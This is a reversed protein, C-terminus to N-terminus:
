FSSRGFFFFWLPCQRIFLNGRQWTSYNYYQGKQLDYFIKNFYITKEMNWWWVFCCTWFCYSRYTFDETFQNKKDKTFLQTDEQWATKNTTWNLVVGDVGVAFAAGVVAVSCAGVVEAAVEVVAPEVVGLVVPVGCPVPLIVIYVGHPTQGSYSRAQSKGELKSLLRKYGYWTMTVHCLKNRWFLESQIIKTGEPSWSRM